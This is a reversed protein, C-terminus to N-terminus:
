SNMLWKSEGIISLLTIELNLVKKMDDLLKETARASKHDDKEFDIILRELQNLKVSKDKHGDIINKIHYM